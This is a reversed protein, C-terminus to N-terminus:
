RYSGPGTPSPLAPDLSCSTVPVPGVLGRERAAGCPGRAEIRVAKAGRDRLFPGLLQREVAVEVQQDGGVADGFALVKLVAVPEDVVVDVPVRDADDLAEAADVARSAWCRMWSTLKQGLMSSSSYMLRSCRTLPRMTQQVDRGGALLVQDLLLGAVQHVIELVPALLEQLQLIRDDVQLVEGGPTEMASRVSVSKRM